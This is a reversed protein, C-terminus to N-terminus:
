STVQVNSEASLQAGMWLQHRHGGILAAQWHPLTGLPSFAAPILFTPTQLVM